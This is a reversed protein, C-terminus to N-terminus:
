QFISIMEKKKVKGMRRSGMMGNKLIENEAKVQLRILLCM